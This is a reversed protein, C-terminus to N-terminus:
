PPSPTGWRASGHGGLPQTSCLSGQGQLCILWPGEQLQALGRALAGRQGSTKVGARSVESGPMRQQPGDQMRQQPGDQMRATPQRQLTNLLTEPRWESPALLVRRRTPCGFIDGSPRIDRPTPPPCLVERSLGRTWRVPGCGQPSVAPPGPNAEALRRMQSVEPGPLQTLGPCVGM